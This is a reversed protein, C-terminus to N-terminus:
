RAVKKAKRALYYRRTRMYRCAKCDEHHYDHRECGVQQHFVGMLTGDAVKEAWKREQAPTMTRKYATVAVVRLVGLRGLL